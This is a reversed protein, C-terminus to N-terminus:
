RFFAADVESLLFICRMSVSSACVHSVVATVKRAYAATVGSRRFAERHEFGDEEGDSACM